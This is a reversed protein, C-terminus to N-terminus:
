GECVCDRVSRVCVSVSLGRECRVRVCVQVSM